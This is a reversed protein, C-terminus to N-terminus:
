SSVPAPHSISDGRLLRGVRVLAEGIAAFVAVKAGKGPVTPREISGRYQAGGWKREREIHDVMEQVILQSHMTTGEM